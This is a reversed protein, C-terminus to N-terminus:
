NRFENNVFVLDSHIWNVLTYDSDIMHQYVASNLVNQLNFNIIELKKLSLDLYEIVIIKPSHKKLDFGKLVELEHGEVDITLFDIKKNIFSSSAIISDM